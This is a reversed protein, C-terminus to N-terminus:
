NGAVCAFLKHRSQVVQCRPNTERIIKELVEPDDPLHYTCIALKPAFTKLAKAAGQLMLREAGEIDAKIFDIKKIGNDEVFKDLTMLNVTDYNVKRQRLFVKNREAVIANGLTSKGAELPIELAGTTNSLGMQVPVIRNDNLKATEQLIQFISRVPEFAYVKAGKSAAYASFDGIWAGCDVVVDGNKVTVDFDGDKYGYPGEGTQADLIDVINKEYNDNYICPVLL